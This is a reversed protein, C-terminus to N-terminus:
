LVRALHLILEVVIIAVASGGLLLAIKIKGKIQEIDSKVGALQNKLEDISSANDDVKGTLEKIRESNENSLSWLKDVDLIHEAQYLEDLKETHTKIKKM